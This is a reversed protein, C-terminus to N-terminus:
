LSDLMRKAISRPSFAKMLESRIQPLGIKSSERDFDATRLKAALEHPSRFLLNELGYQKAVQVYAPTSSAYPLIGRVISTIMKNPSKILTNLMQDYCFHSLVSYNIDRTRWHFTSADFARHEIGEYLLNDKSTLICFRSKDFSSIEFAKPLLYKMSKAFSEPFGFWCFRNTIFTEAETGDNSLSIPDYAEPLHLVPKVVASQVVDRHMATPALFCDVFESLKVFQSLDNIDSFFCLASCKSQSKVEAAALAAERDKYSFVVHTPVEIDKPSGDLFVLSSKVGLEQLGLFLANTQLRHLADNVGTWTKLILIHM